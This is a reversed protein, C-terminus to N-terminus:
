NREKKARIRIRLNIRIRVFGHPDPDSVSNEEKEYFCNVCGSKFYSLHFKSFFLSSNVIIDHM